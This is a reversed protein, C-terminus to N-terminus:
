TNPLLQVATKVMFCPRGKSAVQARASTLTCAPSLGMWLLGLSQKGLSVRSLEVCLSSILVSAHAFFGWLQPLQLSADRGKFITVDKHVRASRVHNIHINFAISVKPVNLMRLATIHSPILAAPSKSKIGPNSVM